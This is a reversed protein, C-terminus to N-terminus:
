NGDLDAAKFASIVYSKTKSKILRYKELMKVLFLDVDVM